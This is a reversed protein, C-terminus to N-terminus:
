KTGGMRRQQRIEEIVAAPLISLYEQARRLNCNYHLRILELNENAKPKYWTSFRKEKRLVYKYFDFQLLNGLHAAENMMQAEMVSSIHYSLARNTMFASYLKECAEPTDSERILDIKSDSVASIFDFVGYERPAKETKPVGVTKKIPQKKTAM